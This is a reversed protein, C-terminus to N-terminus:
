FKAMNSVTAYATMPCVHSVTLTFCKSVQMGCLRVGLSRSTTRECKKRQSKKKSLTADMGYQRTGMKLDVVCPHKLRGTLDEMLIFHNQRTVSTDSETQESIRHPASSSLPTQPDVFRSRSRRRSISRPLEVQWPYSHALMDSAEGRALDLANRRRDEFAMAKLNARSALESESQVRRIIQLGNDSGQNRLQDVQRHLLRKRVVRKKGSGASLADGEGDAMDGECEDEPSLDAVRGGPRKRLRRFVANFVHDKLRTNVTTSGTGRLPLSTTRDFHPIQPSRFHENNEPITSSPTMWYEQPSSPLTSFHNKTCDSLVSASSVPLQHHTLRSSKAFSSGNVFPLGLDPSSAIGGNLDARTLDRNARCFPATGTVNSHSFSRNRGQRLIWAPVIHRNRDLAVEPM